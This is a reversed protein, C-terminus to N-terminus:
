RCEQNARDIAQAVGKLSFRDTTETGKASMGKIVLDGSRRMADLMRGEDAANKLWAGDNQTAMVFTAGGIEATAEFNPKFPFGIIISIENRISDAPRTSVFLFAPDRPRNPPNTQSSNPKGLAFCVKRGGNMGTYAGWEGYQGLVTPQGDVQAQAPLACALAVAVLLTSPLSHPPLATMPSAQSDNAPDDGAIV